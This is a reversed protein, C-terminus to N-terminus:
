SPHERIRKRRKGINEPSRLVENRCTKFTEGSYWIDGIWIEIITVALSYIDSAKGLLSNFEEEPCRYGLTGHEWETEIYLRETETYMSAGFDIIKADSTIDNIIINNTKIDGHIIDMDHIEKFSLIINKIINIKKTRDM